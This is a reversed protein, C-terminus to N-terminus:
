WFISFIFISLLSDMISSPLLNPHTCFSIWFIESSIFVLMMSCLWFWGQVVSRFFSWSAVPWTWCYFWIIRGYLITYFDYKQHIQYAFRWDSISNNSALFACRSFIRCYLCDTASIATWAASILDISSSKFTQNQKLYFFQVWSNIEHLLMINRMYYQIYCIYFAAYLIYNKCTQWPPFSHSFKTFWNLSFQFYTM